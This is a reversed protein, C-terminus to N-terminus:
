IVLIRFVPAHTAERGFSSSHRGDGLAPDDGGRPSPAEAPAADPLRSSWIHQQRRRNRHDADDQGIRQIQQGLHGKLLVAQELQDPVLAAPDARRVVRSDEVVALEPVDDQAGSSNVATHTERVITSPVAIASSSKCTLRKMRRARVVPSTSTHATGTITATFMQCKM